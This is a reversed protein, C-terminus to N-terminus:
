VHEKEEVRFVIDTRYITGAGDRRKLDLERMYCVDGGTDILRLATVDSKGLTESGITVFLTIHNERVEYALRVANEWGQVTQVQAYAIRRALWAATKEATKAEIM